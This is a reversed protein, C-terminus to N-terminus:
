GSSRGRHESHPEPPPAVAPRTSELDLVIAETNVVSVDISALGREDALVLSIRLLHSILRPIGRSTRLILDRADSTILGPPAANSSL